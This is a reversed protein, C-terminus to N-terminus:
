LAWSASSPSRKPTLGKPEEWFCGEALLAAWQGIATPFTRTWSVSAATPIPAGSSDLIRGSLYTIEGVAPTISDSIILLDNDQDLPLKDPYFPGETLQPTPLLLQEAFLGRTAFFSAGLAGLFLRRTPLILPGHM